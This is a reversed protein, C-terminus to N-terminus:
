ARMLTLGALKELRELYALTDAKSRRFPACGDSYLFIAAHEEKGNWSLARITAPQLRAFKFGIPQAEYQVWDSTMFGLPKYKRNLAVYSGDPQRQLCYPFLLRYANDKTM